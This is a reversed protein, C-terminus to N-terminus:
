PVPHGTSAVAGMFQDWCSRAGDAKYIGLWFSVGKHDPNQKVFVYMALIDQVMEDEEVPTPVPVPAPEPYQGGNAMYSIFPILIDQWQQFRKDGPCTHYPTNWHSFMRHVGFGSGDWSAPVEYPIGDIDHAWVIMQKMSALQQDTWPQAVDGTGDDAVGGDWSEMGLSFPNADCNANCKEGTDRFQAIDGNEPNYFHWSIPDHFGPGDPDSGGYVATHFIFLRPTIAYTHETTGLPRPDQRCPYASM